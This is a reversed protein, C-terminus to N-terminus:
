WIRTYTCGSGVNINNDMINGIVKLHHIHCSLCAMMLFFKMM